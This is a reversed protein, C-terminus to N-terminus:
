MTALMIAFLIGRGKFRIKAFGYAPIASSLTTGIVSLISVVLTNHTLLPFNLEDLQLVSWYNRFVVPHPILHPPLEMTKDLTKLSTSLMWVFPLAFGVSILLLGLFALWREGHRRRRSRATARIATSTRSGTKTLDAM